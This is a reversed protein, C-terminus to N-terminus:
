WRTSRNTSYKERWSKLDAGASFVGADGTVVIVDVERRAALEQACGIMERMLEASLANRREPRALTVTGSRGSFECRLHRYM